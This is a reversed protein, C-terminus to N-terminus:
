IAEWNKPDSPDGGKFRHGDEVQGAKPGAPAPKGGDLSQPQSTPEENESLGYSSLIHQYDEPSAKKLNSYAALRQRQAKQVQQAAIQKERAVTDAMRSVFATQNTGTPDNTLWEKLKSVNGMVTKPVLAEVQSAASSSSNSLMSNLGIALEEMQRSDLNRMNGNSDKILGELRESQDVKKQNFAMNGGRAKNPDLDDKLATVWKNVQSDQKQQSSMDRAMKRDTMRANDSSQRAARNDDAIDQRTNRAEIADVIKRRTDIDTQKNTVLQQNQAAINRSVGNDVPANTGASLQSLAQSLNANTDAGMKANRYDDLDSKDKMYQQMIPDDDLSGHAPTSNRKNLFAKIVPDAMPPPPPTSGLDPQPLAGVNQLPTRNTVADYPKKDDEDDMLLAM